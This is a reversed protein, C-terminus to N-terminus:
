FLSPFSLGNIFKMNNRAIIDFKITKLFSLVRFEPVGELKMKIHAVLFCKNMLKEDCHLFKHQM